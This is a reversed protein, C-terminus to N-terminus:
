IHYFIIFVNKCLQFNGSTTVAILNTKYTNLDLGINEIAAILNLNSEVSEFSVKKFFNKNPGTKGVNKEEVVSGLNESQLYQFAKLVEASKIRKTQSVYTSSVCVGPMRLVIKCIKKFEPSISTTKNKIINLMNKITRENTDMRSSVTYGAMVLRNLIYYEIMRKSNLFCYSYITTTQSLNVIIDNLENEIDENIIIKNKSKLQM